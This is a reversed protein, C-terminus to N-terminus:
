FAKNERQIDKTQKLRFTDSELLEAKFRDYQHHKVYEDNIKCDLEVLASKNAKQCINGDFDKIISHMVENDGRLHAM